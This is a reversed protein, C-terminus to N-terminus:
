GEQDPRFIADLNAQAAQSKKVGEQHQMLASFTAKEKEEPISIEYRAFGTRPIAVMPRYQERITGEKSTGAKPVHPRILTSLSENLTKPTLPLPTPHPVDESLIYSGEATITVNETTHKCGIVPCPLVPRNEREREKESAIFDDVSLEEVSTKETTPNKTEIIFTRREDKAIQMLYNNLGEDNNITNETNIISELKALKEKTVKTVKTQTDKNKLKYAIIPLVQEATLQFEINNHKVIFTQTKDHPNIIDLDGLTGRSMQVKGYNLIFDKMFVDEKPPQFKQIQERWASPAHAQIHLSVDHYTNLVKSGCPKCTPQQYRILITNTAVRVPKQIQDATFANKNAITTYRLGTPTLNPCYTRATRQM